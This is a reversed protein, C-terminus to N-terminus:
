VAIGAMTLLAQGHTGLWSGLLAIRPLLKEAHEAPEDAAKAYKVARGVADATEEKDPNPKATEEAADQMARDLKGREPVNLKGLLERLAALETPLTSRRPRRHCM